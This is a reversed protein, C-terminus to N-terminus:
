PRKEFTLIEVYRDDPNDLDRLDSHNPPYEQGDLYSAASEPSPHSTLWCGARDDYEILLFREEVEEFDFSGGGRHEHSEIEDGFNNKVYRARPTLLLRVTGDCEEDPCDDGDGSIGDDETGIRGCEDCEYRYDNEAM